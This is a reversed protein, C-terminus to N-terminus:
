RRVGEIKLSPSFTQHPSNMSLTANILHEPYSMSSTSFATQEFTKAATM